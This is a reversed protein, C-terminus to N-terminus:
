AARLPALAMRVYSFGGALPLRPEFYAPKIATIQKTADISAVHTSILVLGPTTGEDVTVVAIAGFTGAL